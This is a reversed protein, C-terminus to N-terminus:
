YYGLLSVIDILTETLLWARQRLSRYWVRRDIRENTSLPRYDGRELTPRLYTLGREAVENQAYTKLAQTLDDLAKEFQDSKGSYLVFQARDWAENVPKARPAFDAGEPRAIPHRTPSTRGNKIAWAAAEFLLATHRTEFLIDGSFGSLNYAAAKMSLRLEDKM